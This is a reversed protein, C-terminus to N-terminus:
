GIGLLPLDHTRGTVGVARLAIHEAILEGPLDDGDVLRGDRRDCRDFFKLLTANRVARRPRATQLLLDSVERRLAKPQDPHQIGHPVAIGTPMLVLARRGVILFLASRDDGCVPPTKQLM